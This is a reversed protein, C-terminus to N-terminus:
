GPNKKLLKAVVTSGISCCYSSVFNWQVNQQVLTSNVGQDATGNIGWPDVGWGDNEYLDIMGQWANDQTQRLNPETDDWCKTLDELFAPDFYELDGTMLQQMADLMDVMPGANDQSQSDKVLFTVVAVFLLRTTMRPRDLQFEKLRSHINNMDRPICKTDIPGLTM